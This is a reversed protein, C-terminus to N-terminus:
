LRMPMIVYKTEEDLEAHILASTNSDSLNMVINDAEVVSLIDLLYLVNFGISLDDFSYEIDLTEEATEHEPNHASITLHNETFQFLVGKFKENSLVSARQLSNRLDQRNLTIAKDLDAPIVRLYDPYRGDVLKSTISVSPLYFSIHNSSLEIGVEYDSFTLLRNLELITKRPVIVQLLNEIIQKDKEKDAMALRHGDTAVGRLSNSSIEFLMGNLYYRVDQQAMAFQTFRVLNKLASEKIKFNHNAASAEIQPYGNAPLTGLVFKSSPTKLKLRDDKLELEISADDDILKIIDIFKRAGVTFAEETDTDIETAARVEIEMDTGVVSLRGQGIEFLMNSLIPLTQRKEIVGSVQQTVDFLKKKTISLLM